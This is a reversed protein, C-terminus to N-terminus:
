NQAAPRKIDHKRMYHRIQDYSIGLAKAARGQHWGHTSLAGKILNCELANVQATFPMDVSAPPLTPAAPTNPGDSVAKVPVWHRAFPDLVIENVPADMHRAAQRSVAREVANKLERVNGPWPHEMLMRMAQMGFGTFHELGLERAMNQGFHQALIPIDEWRVRLPPLNIVEFALRDLLDARFKGEEALKPLDANTAGM